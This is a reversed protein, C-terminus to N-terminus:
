IRRSLEALPHGKAHLKFAKYWGFPARIVPIEARLKEEIAKLVKLAVEPAALNRSLHAYPYIVVSTPKVTAAVKKIEEVAKEVKEDDGPEVAVFVVLCNEAEAERVADNREAIKTAKVPKFWFYDAHITLIIM